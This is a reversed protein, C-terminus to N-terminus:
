NILHNVLVTVRLLTPQFGKRGDPIRPVFIQRRAGSTLM